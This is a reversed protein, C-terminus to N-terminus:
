TLHGPRQSDQGPRAIVPHLLFPSQGPLISQCSHLRCRGYHTPLAAPAVQVTVRVLIATVIQIIQEPGKLLLAPHFILVHGPQEQFGAPIFLRIQCLEVPIQPPCGHIQLPFVTKQLAPIRNHHLKPFQGHHQFLKGALHPLGRINCLFLFICHPPDETKMLNRYVIHQKQLVFVTVPLGIHCQM